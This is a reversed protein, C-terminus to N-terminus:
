CGDPPLSSNEGHRGTPPMTSKGFYGVAAKDHLNRLHAYWAFIMFVNSCLLSVVTKWMTLIV